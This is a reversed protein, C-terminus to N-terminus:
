FSTVSTSVPKPPAAPQAAPAKFMTSSSYGAKSDRIDNVNLGPTAREEKVKGQQVDQIFRSVDAAALPPVPAPPKDSAATASQATIAEMAATGVLTARFLEFVKHHTFWRV